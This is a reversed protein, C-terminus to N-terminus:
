WDYLVVLALREELCLELERLEEASMQVIGEVVAAAPSVEGSILYLFDL